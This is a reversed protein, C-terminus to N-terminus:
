LQSEYRGVNFGSVDFDFIPSGEKYINVSIRVRKAKMMKEVFRGYNRIFLTETSNDASGSASYSVSDEEDFRVLVTCGSYSSCLVQGREITFIVDKGHRPNTRLTLEGNQTGQYPFDFEVTNSSKVTAYYAKGKSMPDDSQSYLWPAASVETAYKEVAAAHLNKFEKDAVEMYAGGIHQAYGYNGKAIERKLEAILAARKAKFESDLRQQEQKVKESEARAIEEVAENYFRKVDAHGTGLLLETKTMVRWWNNSEAYSSIEQLVQEPNKAFTKEADERLDRQKNQATVAQSNSNKAYHGNFFILYIVLVAACIGVIAKVTQPAHNILRVIKFM